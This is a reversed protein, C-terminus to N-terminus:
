WELFDDKLEVKKAVGNRYRIVIGKREFKGIIRSVTAPSLGTKAVIENQTMIRQRILCELVKRENESFFKLVEEVTDEAKKRANESEDSRNQYLIYILILLIGPIFWFFLGIFVVFAWFLANRGKKKADFYIVIAPIVAILVVLSLEKLGIAFM